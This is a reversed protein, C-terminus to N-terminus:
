QKYREKLGEYIKVIDAVEDMSTRVEPINARMRTLIEEGGRTIEQLIQSLAEPHKPDFLKGGRGEQVFEPLGGMNSAIVPIKAAFAEQVVLGAVEPWNSPVVVLDINGLVKPLEERLFAGEFHIHPNGAALELLQKAYAPEREANGYIYLNVHEDFGCQQFAQILIHVGKMPHIQGLYGIHLQGDSQRPTYNALWDLNNGHHSIKVELSTGANLITDRIFVSPALAVDVGRMANQITHRREEINIGWGRTGPVKKAISPHQIIERTVPALVGQPVVKKIARYVGSESM